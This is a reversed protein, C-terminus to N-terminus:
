PRPRQDGLCVAAPQLLPRERGGLSVGRDETGTRGGAHDAWVFREDHAANAFSSRALRSGAHNEGALAVRRFQHPETDRAIPQIWGDGAWELRPDHWPARINRTGM